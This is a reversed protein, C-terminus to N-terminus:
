SSPMPAPMPLPCRSPAVSRSGCTRTRVPPKSNQISASPGTGRSPLDPSSTAKAVDSMSSSLDRSSRTNMTTCSTAQGTTSTANQIPCRPKRARRDPLEFNYGARSPLQFSLDLARAPTVNTALPSTLPAPNRLAVAAPRIPKEQPKPLAARINSPPAVGVPEGAPPRPASKTDTVPIWPNLESVPAIDNEADPDTLLNPENPLKSRLRELRQFEELARRYDREAQIRYRLALNMLNSEKALRRFGEATCFNRNQQRTIEIDCGIIDPELTVIPNNDLNLVENMASTFLGADLRAARLILQQSIAMRELAFM